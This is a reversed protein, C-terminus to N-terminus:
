TESPPRPPVMSTPFTAIKPGGQYDRSRAPGENDVEDIRVIANLPVYSRRVGKFENRLKEEGPDVLVASREGFVFEEVEIFGFMDSQYVGRAYLEYVQDQNVFLIRYLPDANSM